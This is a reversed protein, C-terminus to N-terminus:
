GEVVVVTVEPDLAKVDVVVPLSPTAVTITSTGEVIDDVWVNFVVVIVEIKPTMDDVVVTLPISPTSVTTSYSGVVCLVIVNVVVIV